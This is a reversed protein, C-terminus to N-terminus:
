EFVVAIVILSAFEADGYGDVIVTAPACPVTVSTSTV